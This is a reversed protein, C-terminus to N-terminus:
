YHAYTLRLLKSQCCQSYTFTAITLEAAVNADHSRFVGTSIRVVGLALCIIMKLFNQNSTM